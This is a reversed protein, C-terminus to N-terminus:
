SLPRIMGSVIRIIEEPTPKREGVLNVQRQKIKPDNTAWAHDILEQMKAQCEEPTIGHAAAVKEIISKM